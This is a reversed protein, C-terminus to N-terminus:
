VRPAKKVGLRLVHAYFYFRLVLTLLNGERSKVKGSTEHKYTKNKTRKTLQIHKPQINDYRVTDLNLLIRSTIPRHNCTRSTVDVAASRPGADCCSTWYLQLVAVSWVVSRTARLCWPSCEYRCLQLAMVVSWWFCDIAHGHRLSEALPPNLPDGNPTAVGWFFLIKLAQLLHRRSHCFYLFGEPSWTKIWVGSLSSVASYGTGRHRPSPSMAGLCRQVRCKLGKAETRRASNGRM